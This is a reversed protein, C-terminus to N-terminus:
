EDELSKIYEILSNIEDDSLHAFAPMVNAYGATVSAGPDTISEYLYEEDATVTSGDDLEVESGYLGAMTPGIMPSGDISHCAQCGNQTFLQRGLDASVEGPEDAVAREEELAALREQEQIHAEQLAAIDVDFERITEEDINQSQQLARVYAVIAWRDEVPIQSRYSPMTRVGNYIASYIEGLPLERVRADHFSPAPVYGYQGTMIIGQGDGTGGHCMTCFIDYRDQGRYLLDRTVDVPFEDVFDGDEDIGEYLEINERLAGRAVTGAVPPRMSRNDDFFPNEQQANFREQFYMNQQPHVPPKDSLQGRCSVLTVAILMLATLTVRSHRTFKMTTNDCKNM